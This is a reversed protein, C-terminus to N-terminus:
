PRTEVEQEHDPPFKQTISEPAFMKMKGGTYAIGPVIEGLKCQRVEAV